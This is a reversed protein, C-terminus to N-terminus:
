QIFPNKEISVNSVLSFLKLQLRRVMTLRFMCTECRLVAGGSLPDHVSGYPTHLKARIKLSYMHRNIAAAGEETLIYPFYPHFICSLPEQVTAQITRCCM